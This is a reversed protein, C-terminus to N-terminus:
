QSGKDTELLVQTNQVRLSSHPTRGAEQRNMWPVPKLGKSTKQLGTRRSAPWAEHRACAGRAGQHSLGNDKRYGQPHNKPGRHVGAAKQITTVRAEKGEATQRPGSLDTRWHGTM